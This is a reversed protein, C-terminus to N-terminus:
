FINIINNQPKSSDNCHYVKHTIKNLSLKLKLHNKKILQKNQSSIKLQPPKFTDPEFGFCDKFESIGFDLYEQTVDEYLFERYNHNIGHLALTKNLSLIYECWKPYYSIPKDGYNPIVYLVDPNYIELEPCPINPSVDDIEKPNVQRIIFLSIIIIALIILVIKLLLNKRKKM